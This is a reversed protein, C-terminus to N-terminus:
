RGLGVWVSSINSLFCFHQCRELPPGVNSNMIKTMHSWKRPADDYTKTIVSKWKQSMILGQFVLMGTLTCGKRPHYYLRLRVLDVIVAMFDGKTAFLALMLNACRNVGGWGKFEPNLPVYTICLGQAPRRPQHPTSEVWSLLTQEPATVRTNENFDLVLEVAM